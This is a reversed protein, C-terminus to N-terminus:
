YGRNLTHAQAVLEELSGAKQIKKIQENLEHIAKAQKMTEKVLDDILGQPDTQRREEFTTKM